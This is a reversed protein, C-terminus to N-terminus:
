CWYNYDSEDHPGEGRGNSLAVLLQERDNFFQIPKKIM